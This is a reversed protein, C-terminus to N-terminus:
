PAYSCQGNVLIEGQQHQPAALDDLHAQPPLLGCDRPGCGGNEADYHESGTDLPGPSHGILSVLVAPDLTGNLIFHSSSDLFVMCPLNGCRNLQAM